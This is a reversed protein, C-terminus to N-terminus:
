EKNFFQGMLIFIIPKIENDISTTLVKEFNTVCKRNTFSFNSFIFM